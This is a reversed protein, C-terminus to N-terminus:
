CAVNLSQPVSPPVTLEHQEEPSANGNEIPQWRPFAEDQLQQKFLRLSRAAEAAHPRVIAPRDSRPHCIVEIIIGEHQRPHHLAVKPESGGSRGTAGVLWGVSYVEKKFPQPGM